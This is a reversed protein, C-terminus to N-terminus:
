PCSNDAVGATVSIPVSLEGGLHRLRVTGTGACARLTAYHGALTAALISVTGSTVDAALQEAEAPGPVLYHGAADTAGVLFMALDQPELATIETPQGPPTPERYIKLTPVETASAVTVQYDGGLQTTVHAVGADGLATLEQTNVPSGASAQSLLPPNVMWEFLDFGLLPQTGALPEAAVRLSAGPRYAAGQGFFSDPVAFSIAPQMTQQWLRAGDPRRVTLVLSDSASSSSVRLTTTGEKVGHLVIPYVPLSVSVIDPDDVTASKLSNIGPALVWADARAGLAIPREFGVGSSATDAPYDNPEYFGLTGNQGKTQGGYIKCGSLACAALLVGAGKHTFTM